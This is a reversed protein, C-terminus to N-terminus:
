YPFGSDENKSPTGMIKFVSWVFSFVFLVILLFGLVGNTQLWLVIWAWGVKITQFIPFFYQDTNMM